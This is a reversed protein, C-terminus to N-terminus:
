EAYRAIRFGIVQSKEEASDRWAYRLEAVSASRWNAGKVVHQAAQEPGLPDTQPTSDVFSLYYDNVWESVNGGMDHLGLPTPQFKGVPAVVPYEDEYGDLDNVLLDRAEAGALNGAQRVVPLADGWPFRRMRGPAEFRAAYEWEAETPLRYGTTVPKKLVLKGGGREYAPPLGERESLWNCYEAADNWTVQVVPHDDLDLTRSGIFGSAHDRRFERFQANTVETVGIYFPRELTVERLGENPRRGQERRDSGMMFKGSPVLRLVYGQKTEITPATEQLALSRNSSILKYTLEREQGKAPTITGTFPQFGEKRVEITHERATLEFSQPTRGRPKGDVFLEADAPEGRISVRALIPALQADFSLRRGPEALVSRTWNEYGPLAVVIDHTFGSPLNVKVPTRGHYTGGVTVEAGAPQSRVTVEADPQGLTVPGINLTEGAKVVVSSEWSKLGPASIQVRRVGSDAQISAPATGSPIGDVSIRAGEPIAQIQLTGWAPQLVADVDQREGEGKVDINAVFDLYRPARVTVTRPGPAVDLEGPAKGVEVGDILVTAAVGKTDVNLKGPLKQLRLRARPTSVGDVEVTVQAPYYGKREAHVVHTGSLVRLVGGSQFSLFTGPTSIDADAPLVDLEVPKMLTILTAVGLLVAIGAAIGALWKKPLPRRAYARQAATREATLVAAAPRASAGAPTVRIEVDEDGAELDVAPMTVVPAITANGVLHHVELWLRTRSDDLVVVQADGVSLVDDRHLERPRSLARGNFRVSADAGPVAHWVGDRRELTISPGAPAGPVVIEAGEGGLTASPGLTREGAPERVRIQAYSAGPKSLAADNM